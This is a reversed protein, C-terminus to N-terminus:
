IRGVFRGPALVGAPDLASKMRRMLALAPPLPHWVQIRSALAPPWREVVLHAGHADATRALDGLAATAAGGATFALYAVGRHPDAQWTGDVRALAATAATVVTALRTPLCALRVVMEGAASAAFDRVAVFSADVDPAAADADLQVTAGYRRALERVRARRVGVDAAVGGLRVVVAAADAAGGIVGTAAVGLGGEIAAGLGLAAAVTDAGLVLGHQREPLPRVKLTVDTLVALTGLSGVALKMLDYGAVNKVVRGGARVRVGDATVAGIGIVADRVRGLSAALWGSRDAAVLGGITTAAPLPTDIALWQGERALVAALESVTVGAAVSVTMDAPEYELIRTLRDVVLAVDYRRPAHGYDRHAGRGLPVLAGGAAAVAGVAAALEAGDAPRVVLAPGVGGVIWAACAQHAADAAAGLRAAVAAAADQPTPDATVAGGAAASRAARRV